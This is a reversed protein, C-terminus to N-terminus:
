GKGVIADRARDLMAAFPGAALNAVQSEVGAHPRTPAIAEALQAARGMRELEDASLEEGLKAFEDHEEHEAHDIVADRLKTLERTFEESDVDLKELRQLVTKAEHEEHLRKDVVTTGNAIKRKARPHVIEEEATEHVALLRRLEVFAKERAEGSAALTDAFMAKIQEHQSVLFDVVDTPSTIATRAM